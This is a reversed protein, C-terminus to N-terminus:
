LLLRFFHRAAHGDALGRPRAADLYGRDAVVLLDADQRGRRPRYAVAAEVIRAVRRRRRKMRCARSSPKSISGIRSSRASAPSGSRGQSFRPRSAAACRASMSWLIAPQRCEPRLDRPHRVARVNPPPTGPLQPQEAVMALTSRFTVSAKRSGGSHCSIRRRSRLQGVIEVRTRWRGVWVFPRLAAM